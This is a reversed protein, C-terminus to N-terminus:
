KSDTKVYVSDVWYKNDRDRIKGLLNKLTTTEKNMSTLMKMVNNVGTIVDVMNCEFRVHASKSHASKIQRVYSNITKRTGEVHDVLAILNAIAVGM